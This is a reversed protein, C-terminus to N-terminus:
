CKEQTLFKSAKLTRSSSRVKGAGQASATIIKSQKVGAEARPRPYKASVIPANASCSCESPLAGQIKPAAVFLADNRPILFDPKLYLNEKPRLFNRKRLFALSETGEGFRAFTVLETCAGHHSGTSM